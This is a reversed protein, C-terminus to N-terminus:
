INENYKNLDTRAKELLKERNMQHNSVKEESLSHIIERLKDFSEGFEVHKESWLEDGIGISHGDALCSLVAVKSVKSKEDKSLNNYSLKCARISSELSDFPSVQFIQRTGASNYSATCYYESM